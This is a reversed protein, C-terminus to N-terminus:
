IADDDMPQMNKKLRRMSEKGNFFARLSCYGCNIFPRNTKTLFVALEHKCVLCETVGIQRLAPQLLVGQPKDEVPADTAEPSVPSELVGRQPKTTRKM